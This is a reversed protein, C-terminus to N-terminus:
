VRSEIRCMRLGTHRAMAAFDRDPSLLEAGAALCTQAIICDVAGRVTVGRKRLSRFLQAAAVYGDADLSLLPVELLMASAARFGADTRFGQLVETLIDPAIGLDEEADLARRLRETYGNKEANFWAAWVATDVVVM